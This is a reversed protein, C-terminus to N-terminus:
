LPDKKWQKKREKVKKTKEVYNYRLAMQRDIQSIKKM